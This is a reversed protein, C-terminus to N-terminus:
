DGLLYNRALDTYARVQQQQWVEDRGLEAALWAAVRPAARVSSQAGLLLARTRRSLVDEVTRAMEARAAWVVEAAVYPLDADLKEGLAPQQAVLTEVQAADSGYVSFHPRAARDSTHGHIPLTETVCPRHDFGAVREAQDLVDQAMRRYTTWKGGTITLLGSASLLVVHDRSLAATNRSEGAKVLPRLGAFVSVVDGRQPDRTLYRAANTLLFRIEEEQPTPELGIREAAQDTTGVIVRDHWPVAFMVRGDPTQPVMIASDGPLFSRPLVLHAGQSAQIVPAVGPEDLARVGDCFVGTANIVVRAPIDLREGTEADEVVAGALLGDEKLLQVVRLYNIALGGHDFVTRALHVALRTDDFQGDYYRVGGQLGAPELTPILQLTEERSLQQSPGLGLQGALRDYMKLGIGYFPGEWWNYLPVIFAQHHVLHPANRCLLGREHLAELVLSLHGQKLYRVGGHVLKTSRSSTGKAFDHQEALVTRYGRSAADVAVGLGTAGGGIVLVDVPARASRLEDLAHARNM